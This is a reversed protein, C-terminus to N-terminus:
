YTKSTERTEVTETFPHTLFICKRDSIDMHNVDLCHITQTRQSTLLALLMVVKLTLEKLSICEISPYSRLRNLVQNVYWIVAYRPLSPKQEFVEEGFTCVLRLLIM